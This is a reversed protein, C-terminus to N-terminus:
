FIISFYFEDEDNRIIYSGEYKEIIRIVNKIGIGHEEPMISKSTKIENNDYKIPHNYTNKVSLIVHDDEDIFKLKIVRKKECKECAEIANNLLNALLVVLDEDEIKINKLDNVKVSFVIQKKLAEEYKTNLIANIIVHNTNISNKENMLSNSISNVYKSAEIYEKEKLLAEICLIQNKFEHAKSKQLEDNESISHYIKMQNKVQMELIEKEHLKNEREVIDNMLYYVFINMIVIGFSIIYLVHAQMRNDTYPFTIIMAVITFITFIPFFFFRAWVTDELKETSKKGFQKKVLLVCLFLVIKSLIVVLNGEVAYEKKVGGAISFFTINSAYAIYDVILALGQYLLAFITAKKISIKYYLCMMSSIVIIVTVQKIVLWDSLLLSCVYLICPMLVIYLKRCWKKNEKLEVCFSEYFMRCCLTEFAIIAFGSIYEFM